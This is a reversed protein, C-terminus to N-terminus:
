GHELTTLPTFMFLHRVMPALGAGDTTRRYWGPNDIDMPRFPCSPDPTCWDRHVIEQKQSAIVSYIAAWVRKAHSPALKAVFRQHCKYTAVNGLM